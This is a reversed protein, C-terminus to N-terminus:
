QWQLMPRKERDQFLYCGASLEGSVRRGTILSLGPFVSGHQLGKYPFRPQARPNPRIATGNNEVVWINRYHVSDGHAQFRLPGDAATVADGLLTNSTLKQHDHIVVGNLSVTVVAPELLTKGTTDFKAKTFEVDYTQWSLPPFSMNLAPRVLEYFAGCEQMAGLPNGSRDINLGFSDLIQLEYRGQLYVGSNGRQQGSDNPMFPERFELHLTFSGFTKTTIAGTSASGIPLLFGSDLVATGQAFASLGKGNFLVVANSGSAPAAGLTPSERVVKNLTFTEGKPTRGNLTAGDASLTASYEKTSDSPQFHIGTSLSTGTQETRSVADWGAGPLGGLLFAATFINQKAVVQVGLRHNDAGVSGVYEGQLDFAAALTEVRLKKAIATSTAGQSLILISLVWVRRPNRYLFFIKSFVKM